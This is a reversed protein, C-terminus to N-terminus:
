RRCIRSDISPLNPHEIPCSFSCFPNNNHHSFLSVYFRLFRSQPTLQIDPSPLDITSVLTADDGVNERTTDTAISLDDGAVTQAPSAFANSMMLITHHQFFSTPTDLLLSSLFQFLQFFFHSVKIPGFKLTPHWGTQYNLPESGERINGHV